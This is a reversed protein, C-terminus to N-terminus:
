RHTRVSVNALRRVNNVSLGFQTKLYSFVSEVLPRKHYEAMLREPGHTRFKKDVSLVDARACSKSFKIANNM